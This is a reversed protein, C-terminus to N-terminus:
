AMGEKENWGPALLHLGVNEVVKHVSSLNFTNVRLYVAAPERGETGHSRVLRTFEIKKKELAQVLRSLLDVEGTDQIAILMSGKEGLGFLSRYAAMMDNLSFIGVVRSSSDVVPLAGISRSTFLLLADDLTSVVQLSVFDESMIASVPTGSVKDMVEKREEGTLISSPCASRLDRDTVMGRLVGKNDVVPLHRFHHEQLIDYAEDVPVEQFITLPEPTMYYHVFM